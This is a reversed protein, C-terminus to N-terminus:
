TTKPWKQNEFIMFLHAMFKCFFERKLLFKDQILISLLPTNQYKTNSYKTLFQTRTFSEGFHKYYKIDTLMNSIKVQEMDLSKVKLKSMREVTQYLGSKFGGLSNKLETITNKAGHNRSPVKLVESDRQQFEWNIWKNNEQGWTADKHTIKFERHPLNYREM